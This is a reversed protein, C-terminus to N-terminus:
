NPWAVQLDPHHVSVATVLPLDRTIACCIERREVMGIALPDDESGVLCIGLAAAVEIEVDDVLVATPLLSDGKELIEVGERHESGVALAEHPGGVAVAFLRM